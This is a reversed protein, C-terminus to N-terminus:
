GLGFEKLESAWKWYKKPIMRKLYRINRRQPIFQTKYFTLWYKEFEDKKEPLRIRKVGAQRCAPNIKEQFIENDRGIYVDEGFVLMINYQPFRHIFHQMIMESTQHKIEFEGFLVRHQDVPRLRIFSIARGYEWRVQRALERFKKAEASIKCLVYTYGKEEVQEIVKDIIRYKIPDRHLLASFIERKFLRKAQPDKAQKIRSLRDDIETEQFCTKIDNFLNLQEM